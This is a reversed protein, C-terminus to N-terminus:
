SETGMRVMTGVGADTLLELLLGHLTRGDAITVRTVGGHLASLCAEAKPIMGGSVTGDEIWGALTRAEVESAIKGKPGCVGPVDTLFILKDAQVATAVATAVSDANVNLSELAEDVAVPAIVPVMKAKLIGSLM